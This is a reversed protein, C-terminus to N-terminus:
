SPCSAERWTLWEGRYASYEAPYAAECSPLPPAGECRALGSDTPFLYGSRGLTLLVCGRDVTARQYRYLGARAAYRPRGALAEEATGNLAPRSIAFRAAQPADSASVAFASGILAALVGWRVAGSASRAQVFWLVSRILWWLVFSTWIVAAAADSVSNIFPGSRLWSTWLLAVATGIAALAGPPRKLWRPMSARRRERENTVMGQFLGEDEDTM